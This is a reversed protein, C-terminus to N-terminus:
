GRRSRSGAAWTMPPASQRNHLPDGPDAQVEDDGVSGSHVVIGPPSRRHTGVLEAPAGDPLWRSGLLAAASLGARRSTQRVVVLAAVALDVATLEAGQRTYVNRFLKTHRRALDRRTLSGESLAESAVVLQQM